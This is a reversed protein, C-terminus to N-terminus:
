GRYQQFDKSEYVTRIIYNFLSVANNIKEALEEYNEKEARLSLATLTNSLEILKQVEKRYNKPGGLKSGNNKIYDSITMNLAESASKIKEKQEPTVRISITVTNM